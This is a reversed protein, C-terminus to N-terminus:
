PGVAVVESQWERTMTLWGAAARFALLGSFSRRAFVFVDLADALGLTRRERMLSSFCFFM